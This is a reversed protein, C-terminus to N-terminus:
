LERSSEGLRRNYYTVGSADGDDDADNITKSYTYFVNFTIGAHTANRSGGPEATIPTIATTPTLPQHTGFQPYPKFNQYNQFIQQLRAPDNSVDLPLVNINWNNLLGVGASGQYRGEVVVSNTLQYQIGASWTAVYPLRMNPDYWSANRGSYNTGVFPVSGDPAVNFTYAPPGESLGSCTSESRRCAGPYQGHSSIRRLESESREHVSGFAHDRFQQPVRVESPIDM